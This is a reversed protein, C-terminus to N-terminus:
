IVTESLIKQLRDLRERVSGDYQQGNMKLRIGGILWPDVLTQLVIM